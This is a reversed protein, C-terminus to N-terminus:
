PRQRFEVSTGDPLDRTESCLYGLWEMAEGISVTRLNEVSHEGGLFFPKRGVLRSALPLPGRLRQWDRGLPWGTQQRHDALIRAAWGELTPAITEVEGTETGLRLVGSPAIGFAEAFLDLGFFITPEPLRDYHRTWGDPRNWEVLGPLGGAGAAPLVLLASEFALFGNRRDLLRRLEPPCGPTDPLPDRSLAPSAIELLRDLDTM